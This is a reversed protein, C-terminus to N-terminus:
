GLKFGPSVDQMQANVGEMDILGLKYASMIQGIRAIVWAIGDAMANSYVLFEEDEPVGISFNINQSPEGHNAYNVSLVNTNSM